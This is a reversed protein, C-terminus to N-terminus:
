TRSNYFWGDSAGGSSAQYAIIIKAQAHTMDQPDSISEVVYSPLDPPDTLTPAGNRRDVLCLLGDTSINTVSFGEAALEALATEDTKALSYTYGNDAM